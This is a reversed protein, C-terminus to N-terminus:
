VVCTLGSRGINYFKKSMIVNSDTLDFDYPFAGSTAYIMGLFTKNYQGWIGVDSAMCM